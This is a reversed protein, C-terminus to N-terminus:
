KKRIFYDLMNRGEVKPVEGKKLRKANASAQAAMYSSQERASTAMIQQLQILQQATM